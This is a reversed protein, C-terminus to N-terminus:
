KKLVMELANVDSKWENLKQYLEEVKEPMEEALNTSETLDKELDYLELFSKKGLYKPEHWEILKYHGMLVASAPKMGSGKHYHPYHWFLSREDSENENDFLLPYFSQGDYEFGKKKMKLIDLFTPFFDISCVVNRNVTGPEIKGKWQVILPVRIGGEYLWGKGARLPFQSAYSHKGGNDSYFIILTKESLSLQDIVDLIRGIQTDLTEIMAGIVPHNKPQITLPNKMYKTVLSDSEMLPDHIANYSLYLFFSSDKNERIFNIGKGTITRTNHADEDGKQSPKPKYTILIDDFGQKDPNYPESKPPFKDISLHWKGYYATKYNGSRALEGLTKEELPLFKQWEPTKLPKETSPNGPIFDTLHLRAPYKGTMISARTPSCVAAATYANTFRMGNEALLDINPTRYYESGFCSLQGWGLDDALLFVINPKEEENSIEQNADQNKCSLACIGLSVLGLERISFNM